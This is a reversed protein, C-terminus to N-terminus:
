FLVLRDLPFAATDSDLIGWQKNFFLKRKNRSVPKIKLSHMIMPLEMELDPSFIWITWTHEEAYKEKHFHLTVDCNSSKIRKIM